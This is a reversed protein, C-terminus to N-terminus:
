NWSMADGCVIFESSGPSSGDTRPWARTKGLEAMHDSHNQLVTSWKGTSGDRSLKFVGAPGAPTVESVKCELLAAVIGVVCAAHTVLILNEGAFKDELVRLKVNKCRDLCGQPFSEERDGMFVSKYEVDLVPVNRDVYEILGAERLSDDVCLHHGLSKALPTATEICRLFPSVLIRHIPEDSFLHCAANALEEAQRRGLDSLPPDHVHINDPRTKVWNEMGINYDHRDGHRIVYVIQTMKEKSITRLARM